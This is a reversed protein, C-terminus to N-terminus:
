LGHVDVAHIYFIAQGPPCPNVRVMGTTSDQCTQKCPDCCVYVFDWM